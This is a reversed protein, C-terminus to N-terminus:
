LTIKMMACLSNITQITVLDGSDLRDQVKDIAHLVTSHDRGGFQRGIAPLSRSTAIKAVYMAIQRPWSVNRTRRDSMMDGLQIQFYSAVTRQIDQISIADPPSETAFVFSLEPACIYIPWLKRSQEISVEHAVYIPDSGKRGGIKGRSLDIGHDEVANVSGLRARVRKINAFVDSATQVDQLTM